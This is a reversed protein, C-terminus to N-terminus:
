GKLHDLKGEYPYNVIGKETIIGKIYRAPTIDFAPNYVGIGEPAIQVGGVHTVEKRDREEVQIEEGSAIEFDITTTPAAVYFPVQNERALVALAYTGIKNATDGNLAIRDAGVLVLDIKGKKMLYGAANDPILTAPINERVLEWATLRAGQLRPRTEDAFVHIDKGARHAARIIGLATGFEVTALSGTNCHTLISAERPVIGNGYEGIKKNTLVDEGAIKEAAEFIKLFLSENDRGRNEEIVREIEGLAWFLNVATPRTSALERAADELKLLFQEKDLGCFQRAALAMGYAATAGIAPAGRVAMDRIAEAVEGYDRCLSYELTLPLKRQDIIRVADGEWSVTRM